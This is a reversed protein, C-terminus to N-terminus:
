KRVDLNTKYKTEEHIQVLLSDVLAELKWEGLRFDTM